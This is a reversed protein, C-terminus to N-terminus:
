ILGGIWEIMPMIFPSLVAGIVVAGVVGPIIILLLRKKKGKKRKGRSKSGGRHRRWRVVAVTVVGAAVAGGIWLWPLDFPLFEFLGGLVATGPDPTGPTTIATTNFTIEHPDTLPNGALDAARTGVAITYSTNTQLYSINLWFLSGPGRAVDWRAEGGTVNVADRIDRMEESFDLELSLRTTPVTQLDNWPAWNEDNLADFNFQSDRVRPQKANDLIVAFTVAESFAGKGDVAVVSIQYRGDPVNGSGWNKNWTANTKGNVNATMNRVGEINVFVDRLNGDPDNATGEFLVQGEVVAGPAPSTVTLTPAEGSVPTAAAALFLLLLLSVLAPLLINRATRM